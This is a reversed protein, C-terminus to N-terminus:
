KSHPEVHRLTSTKIFVLTLIAFIFAQVIGVFIELFMFPLPLIYPVLFAIVLLLIEGAFVNGFLRFSFSLVRVGESLMEFFGLVFRIPGTLDLFRRVYRLFGLAKWSFFQISLMSFTALALTTTLDSNPSRLLAFKGAAGEVYFSGFFGPTLALLNATFIFLFFTAILPLIRKSLARDQTVMDTLLLLEYILIRLGNVLTNNHSARRAYFFWGALGLLITVLFTTLFTNTIGVGLFQLVYEPQLSINLM